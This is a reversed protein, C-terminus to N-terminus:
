KDPWNGMDILADRMMDFQDAIFVGVEITGNDAPFSSDFSTATSLANILWISADKALALKQKRSFSRKFYHNFLDDYKVMNAVIMALKIGPIRYKVMQELDDNFDEAPNTRLVYDDWYQNVAENFLAEIVEPTEKELDPMASIVHQIARAYAQDNLNYRHLVKKGLQNFDMKSIDCEQVMVMVQKLENELVEIYQPAWIYEYSDVLKRNEQFLNIRIVRNRLIAGYKLREESCFWIARYLLMHGNTLTLTIDVIHFPVGEEAAFKFLCLAQKIKQGPQFNYGSIIDMHLRTDDRILFEFVDQGTQNYSTKLKKSVKPAEINIGAEQDMQDQLQRAFAPDSAVKRSIDAVCARIEDGINSPSSEIITIFASQSIWYNKEVDPLLKYESKDVYQSLCYKELDQLWNLYSYGSEALNLRNYLERTTEVPEPFYQKILHEPTIIM